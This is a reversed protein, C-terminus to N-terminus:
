QLNIVQFWWDFEYNGGGADVTLLSIGLAPGPTFQGAAWGAVDATWRNYPPAGWGSWSPGHSTSQSPGLLIANPGEGQGQVIWADVWEPVDGANLGTVPGTPWEVRGAATLHQNNDWNGPM